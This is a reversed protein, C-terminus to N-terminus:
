IREKQIVQTDIKKYFIINLYKTLLAYEINYKKKNRVIGIGTAM